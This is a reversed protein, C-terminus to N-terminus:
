PVPKRNQNRRGDSIAMGVLERWMGELLWRSLPCVRESQRFFHMDWQMFKGTKWYEIMRRFSPWQKWRWGQGAVDVSAEQLASFNLQATWSHTSLSAKFFKTIPKCSLHHIFIFHKMVHGALDSRVEKSPIVQTSFLKRNTVTIWLYTYVCMCINTHMYIHTHTLQSDNWWVLM